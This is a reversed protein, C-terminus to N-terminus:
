ATAWWRSPATAAAQADSLIRVKDQPLLEAFYEDVGVEEAIAAAVQRSDGTLMITRAIGLQRLRNMTQKANDRPRDALGFVAAPTDDITM